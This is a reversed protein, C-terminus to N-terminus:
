LLPPPYTIHSTSLQSVTITLNTHQQVIVSRMRNLPLNNPAAKCLLIPKRISHPNERKILDFSTRQHSICPKADLALRASPLFDSRRNAIHASSAALFNTSTRLTESLWQIINIFISASAACFTSRL